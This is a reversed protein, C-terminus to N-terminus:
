RWTWITVNKNRNRFCEKYFEMAVKLLGEYDGWGNKPNYKKYKEPNNKLEKIAQKLPLVLDKVEKGEAEWMLSYLGCAEAMETLNHTISMSVIEAKCCNCRIGIDLSMGM